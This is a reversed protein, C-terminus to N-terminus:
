PWPELFVDSIVFISYLRKIYKHYFDTKSIRVREKPDNSPDAKAQWIQAFASENRIKRTARVTAPKASPFIEIQM